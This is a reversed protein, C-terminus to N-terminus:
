DVHLPQGVIECGRLARREHHRRDRPRTSPYLWSRGVLVLGYADAEDDRSFLRGRHKALVQMMADKGKTGGHGTVFLKLNSPPVLLIPIGRGYIEMKLVGGLEGLDFVRGGGRIGMAYGEYAVLTPQHTDLLTRVEDRLRCLRQLGKDKPRVCGVEIRKSGEYAYGLSTLSPDIALITM